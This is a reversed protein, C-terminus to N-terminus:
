KTSVLLGLDSIIKLFIESPQTELKMQQMTFPHKFVLKQAHLLMTNLEFNNEFMKNQKCEGHTKDGIIYHRAQALHRRIQHMRGTKPSLEVLSYRSTPYKDVFVPVEVQNLCKFATEATQFVGKENALDRNFLGTEPMFGRVIAWYTKVVQNAQFLNKMAVDAEKTLAFVVLGATKRDIRHCPSVWAGLQDRLIQLAFETEEAAIPSRHVLLNHPKNIVVYHEDQFIIPLHM